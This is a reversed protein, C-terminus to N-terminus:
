EVKNVDYIDKKIQLLGLFIFISYVYYSALTMLPYILSNWFGAKIFVNIERAVNFRQSDNTIFIPIFM